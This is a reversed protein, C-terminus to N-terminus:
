STEIGMSRTPTWCLSPRQERYNNSTEIGMSRTPTWRPYKYQNLCDLCTEIGMSRTPTWSKRRYSWPSVRHRKLEWVARLLEVGDMGRRGICTATEIGMSRTPTWSVSNNDYTIYWFLKLEWVARLLEVRCPDCNDRCSRRKLEWVARLLEVARERQLSESKSNWNGYQAYSNLEPRVRVIVVPVCRKLEWVARPLEIIVLVNDAREKM